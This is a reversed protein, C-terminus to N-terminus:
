RTTGVDGSGTSQQTVTTPLTSTGRGANSGANVWNQVAGHHGNVTSATLYTALDGGGKVISGAVWVEKHNYALFNQDDTNIGIKGNAGWSLEMTTVRVPFTPMQGPTLADFYLEALTGHVAIAASDPEIAERMFQPCAQGPQCTPGVSSFHGKIRVTAGNLANLEGQNFFKDTLIPYTTGKVVLNYRAPCNGGAPCMTDIIEVKGTFTQSGATAAFAPAALALLFPVAVLTKM